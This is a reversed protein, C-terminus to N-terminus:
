TYFIESQGLYVALYTFTYRLVSYFKMKLNRTKSYIINIFIRGYDNTMKLKRATLESWSDYFPRFIIVAICIELYGM